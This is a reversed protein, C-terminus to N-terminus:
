VQACPRPDGRRLHGLAPPLWALTQNLRKACHKFLNKTSTPLERNVVGVWLNKLCFCKSIIYPMDGWMGVKPSM